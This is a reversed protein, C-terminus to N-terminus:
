QAGTLRTANDNAVWPCHMDGTAILSNFDGFTVWFFGSKGDWDVGFDDWSTRGLVQKTEYRIGEIVWEHGGVIPGVKKVAGCRDPAFYGEPWDTGAICPQKQLAGQLEEFTSITTYGAFYGQTIAEDLAWEGGSGTDKPPWSGPYPDRKTAGSYIGLAILDLAEINTTGTWTWRSTLRCQLAAFGTCAGVDRQNLAGLLPKWGVDPLSLVTYSARARKTIAGQKRGLKHRVVPRAKQTAPACEPWVVATSGGTASPSGASATEGGFGTGGTSASGGVAPAGGVATPDVPRTNCQLAPLLLAFLVALTLWVSRTM